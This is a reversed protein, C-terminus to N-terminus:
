EKQSGDGVGSGHLITVKSTIPIQPLGKFGKESLTIYQRVM